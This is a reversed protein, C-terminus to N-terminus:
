ASVLQPSQMVREIAQQLQARRSPSAGMTKGYRLEDCEALVTKIQAALPAPAGSQTLAVEMEDPTLSPAPIPFLDAVLGRVASAMTASWRRPDDGAAPVQARMRALRDAVMQERLERTLQRAAQDPHLRRWVTWGSWAALALLGLLGLILPTLAWGLGPAPAPKTTRPLLSETVVATGLGIKVAPAAITDVPANKNAAGPERVFFYVQLSPITLDPKGTEFTTLDVAIEVAQKGGAWDMRKIGIDRVVFPAVPLREKTFNDLVMEVNRDHVARLTYRLTDGVWIAPKDVQTTIVVPPEKPPQSQQASSFTAPLLLLGCLVLKKM